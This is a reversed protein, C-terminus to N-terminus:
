LEQEIIQTTEAVAQDLQDDFNIVQYDFASALKLEDDAIAIRRKIDKPDDGREVLRQELVSLSEPAIFIVVCGPFTDKFYKAGQVDVVWLPTHGRAMIAEVDAKQSGYYDNGYKAWEFMENNEIKKEFDEHAIFHYDVDQTESERKARTTTTTVKAIPLGMDLVRYAVSTKGVGSPGTIVFFKNLENM